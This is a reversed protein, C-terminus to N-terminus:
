AASRASRSSCTNSDSTSWSPVPTPRRRRSTSCSPSWCCVPSRRTATHGCGSCWWHWPLRWHRRHLSRGRLGTVLLVGLCFALGWANPNRLATPTWEAIGGAAQGVQFPLLLLRPGVPTVAAAVVSLGALALAKSVVHRRHPRTVALLVLMGPVLVWLGHVNAWLWTFAMVAWWPPLQDAQLARRLSPLMLVCFLLSLTQPRDQLVLAVPLGVGTLLLVARRESTSRLLFRALLVYFAVALVLRLAYLGPYGLDLRRVVIDYSVETLWASPHWDSGALYSIPDTGLSVSRRALWEAGLIRHWYVDPDINAYAALSVGAVGVLFAVLRWASIQGSATSPTAAVGNPAPTSAHTTDPTM